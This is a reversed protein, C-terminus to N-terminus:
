GLLTMSNNGYLLDSLLGIYYTSGDPQETGAICFNTNGRNDTFRYVKSGVFGVTSYIEGDPANIVAETAKKPDGDAAVATIEGIYEFSEPEDGVKLQTWSAKGYYCTGDYNLLDPYTSGDDSIISGIGGLDYYYPKTRSCFVIGAYYEVIESTSETEAAEAPNIDEGTRQTNKIMFNTWGEDDTWKYVDSGVQGYTSELNKTPSIFPMNTVSSIKGIYEFNNPKDSQIFEIYSLQGYYCEGNYFIAEINKDYIYLDDYIDIANIPIYYSPRATSTMMIGRYYNEYYDKYKVKNRWCFAYNGDTDKFRYVERGERGVTSQLENEPEAYGITISSIDGVYEFDAPEAGVKIGTNMYIGYYVVGDFRIADLKIGDTLKPPEDTQITETIAPAAGITQSEITSQSSENKGGDCGCLLVCLFFPLFRKM